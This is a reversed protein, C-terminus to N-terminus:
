VSAFSVLCIRASAAGSWQEAEVCVNGTTSLLNELRSAVELQVIMYDM